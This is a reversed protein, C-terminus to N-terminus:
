SSNKCRCCQYWFIGLEPGHPHCSPLLPGVGVAVVGRATSCTASDILRAPPPIQIAPPGNPMNRPSLGKSGSPLSATATRAVTRDRRPWTYTASM